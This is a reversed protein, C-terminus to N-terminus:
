GGVQPRLAAGELATLLERGQRLAAALIPAAPEHGSYRVQECATALERLRARDAAGPLRAARTLEQLTLARAPPLRQQEGLRATILALLLLPQRSAEAQELDYLTPQTPGAPARRAGGSARQRRRLLGAVRLENVIVALALAVVVALSAWAIGLLVAQSFGLQGVLRRLWRDDAHEPPPTLVEHLWENFRTWWGGRPADAETLHALLPTLRALRPASRTTGTAAARTLLTRLESLGDVSLLNDARNRNWGRPLWPAWESQALSGALDPCQAVIRAYDTDVIRDLKALCADLTGLADRAQAAPLGATACILAVLWRRM